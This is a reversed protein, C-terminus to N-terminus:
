KLIYLRGKPNFFARISDIIKATDPQTTQAQIIVLYQSDASAVVRSVNGNRMYKAVQKEARAQNNYHFVVIDYTGAAKTTKSTVPSGTSDNTTQLSDNTNNSLTASDISIPVPTPTTAPAQVDEVPVEITNQQSNWYFFGAGILLLLSIVVIWLTTNNNSVIEDQRGETSEGVRETEGVGVTEGVRETETEAKEWKVEKVRWKELGSKFAWQEKQFLFIGLGELSYGQATKAGAQVQELWQTLAKNADDANLNEEQVIRELLADHQLQANPTWELSWNPASIHGEKIQTSTKNLKLTGMGPLACEGRSRLMSVVYVDIPLQM